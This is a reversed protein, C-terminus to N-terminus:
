PQLKKISTNPTGATRAGGLMCFFLVVGSTFLKPSCLRRSIGSYMNLNIVFCLHPGQEPSLLAYPIHFSEWTKTGDFYVPPAACLVEIEAKRSALFFGLIFCLQLSSGCPCLGTTWGTLM